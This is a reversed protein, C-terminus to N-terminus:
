VPIELHDSIIDTPKLGTWLCINDIYVNTENETAPAYKNLAKEITLGKYASSLLAAMAQYGTKVDPFHAFRGDGRDAGHAKAFKGYEIDGPNNLRQPRTGKVLFGEQRAMAELLKM